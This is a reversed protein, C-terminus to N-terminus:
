PSIYAAFSEPAAAASTYFPDLVDAVRVLSDLAPQLLLRRVRTLSPWLSRERLNVPLAQSFTPAAVIESRRPASSAHYTMTM